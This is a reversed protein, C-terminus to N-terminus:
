RPGRGRMLAELVQRTPLGLVPRGNRSEYSEIAARLAADFRGSAPGPFLGAETLLQQLARLEAPAGLVSVARLPEIRGAFAVASVATNAVPSAPAKKVMVGEEIMVRSQVFTGVNIAVV